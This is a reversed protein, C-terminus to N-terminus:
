ARQAPGSTASGRTAPTPRERRSLVSLGPPIAAGLAPLRTAHLAEEPPRAPRRRARGAAARDGRAQLPRRAPDRRARVRRAPGPAARGQVVARAARRVGEESTRPGGKAPRGAGRAQARVEDHLGPAQPADPPERRARRRAPRPTAGTGRALLGHERPGGEHARGRRSLGQPRPLAHARP